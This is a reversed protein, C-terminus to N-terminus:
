GRPGFKQGSGEIVLRKGSVLNDFESFDSICRIVEPQSQFTLLLIYRVYMLYGGRLGIKTRKARRVAKEFYLTISFDSICRTVEFHGQCRLM